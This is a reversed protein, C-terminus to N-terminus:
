IDEDRLWDGQWRYLKKINFLATFLHIQRGSLGINVKRRGSYIIDGKGACVQIRVNQMSTERSVNKDKDIIIQYNCTKM